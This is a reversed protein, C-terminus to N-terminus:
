FYIKNRNKLKETYRLLEYNNDFSRLIEFEMSMTYNQRQRDFFKLYAGRELLGRGGEPPGFYLLGGQPSILAKVIYMNWLFRLSSVLQKVQCNSSLDFTDM